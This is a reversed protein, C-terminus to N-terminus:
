GTIFLSSSGTSLTYITIESQAIVHLNTRTTWNLVSVMFINETLINTAKRERKRWISSQCKECGEGIEENHLIHEIGPEGFIVNKREASSRSKSTSTRSVPNDFCDLISYTSLSISLSSQCLSSDTSPLCNLIVNTLTSFNQIHM